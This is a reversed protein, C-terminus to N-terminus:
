NRIDSVCRHIKEICEADSVVVMKAPGAQERYIPGFQKFRSEIHAHIRGKFERRIKPRLTGVLPLPRDGPIQHYPLTETEAGEDPAPATAKDRHTVVLLPTAYQKCLGTYQKRLATQRIMASSQKIM